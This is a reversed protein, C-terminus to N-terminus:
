IYVNDFNENNDNYLFNEKGYDEEDSEEKVTSSMDILPNATKNIVSSEEVITKNNAESYTEMLIIEKEPNKISSGFVKELPLNNTQNSVDNIINEYEIKNNQEIIKDYTKQTEKNVFSNHFNIQIKNINNTTTEIIKKIDEKEKQKKKKEEEELTKKAKAEIVQKKQEIMYKNQDFGLNFGFM